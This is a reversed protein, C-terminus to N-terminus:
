SKEPGRRVTGGAIPLSARRIPCGDLRRQHRPRSRRRRTTQSVSMLVWLSCAIIALVLVAGAIPVLLVAPDHLRTVVGSVFVPLWVFLGVTWMLLALRAHQFALSGRHKPSFVLVMLPTIPGASRRGPDLDM